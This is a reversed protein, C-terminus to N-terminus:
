INRLWAGTKGRQSGVVNIVRVSEVTIDAWDDGREDRYRVLHSSIADRDSQDRILVRRLTDRARPDLTELLSRLHDDAVISSALSIVQGRAV